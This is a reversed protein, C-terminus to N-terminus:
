YRCVPKPAGNAEVWVPSSFAVPRGTKPNKVRLFYYPEEASVNVYFNGRAGEYTQVIRNGRTVVEVVGEFAEPGRSIEFRGQLGLGEPRGLRAGMPANDIRFDMRIDNFNQAVAYFRRALMAEKLDNTNNSRAIMVTKPLSPAGWSTGHHDESGVAGLYWGKDLAYSLWSGGKGSSDYESGKGFVELGVVRMNAGPVHDFDNFAFAPDRGGPITSLSSEFLDERGPHNFVVLGDNGGGLFDPYLFWQWFLGMSILYGPGTKANIVNNSFFVNLHGYRDSTWEFGRFATFAPTSAELAQEETARWKRFSDEPNETDAILCDLFQESFCDGTVTLPLRANDSHDSIGMFSQGENKVRNFATAPRTGIAGDSYGTHGHIVGAYHEFSLEDFAPTCESAMEPRPLSRFVFLPDALQGLIEACGELSPESLCEAIPPSVRALIHLPCEISFPDDECRLVGGDGIVDGVLQLPCDEQFPNYLCELFGPKPEARPVIQLQASRSDSLAGDTVTFHLNVPDSIDPVVVQADPLNGDRIALPFPDNPSQTWQYRLEDNESDTATAQLAVFEGDTAVGPNVQLSQVVPATNTHSPKATVAIVEVSAGGRNDVAQFAFRFTRNESVQPLTVEAQLTDAGSISIPEDPEVLSWRVSAIGDEDNATGNLTITEGGSVSFDPGASVQPLENAIVDRVTVTVEDTFLQGAFTEAEFQFVLNSSGGEVQPAKYTVLNQDPQTIVTAEPGELQTWLVRVISQGSQGTVESRGELTFEEDENVTLDAGANVQIGATEETEQPEEDPQQQKPPQPQQNDSSSDGCGALILTLALLAMTWYRNM